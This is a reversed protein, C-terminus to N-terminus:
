KLLQADFLTKDCPNDENEAYILFSALVELTKSVNNHDSTPDDSSVHANFYKAYYEDFFPQYEKMLENIYTNREEFSTMQSIRLFHERLDQLTKGSLEGQFQEFM